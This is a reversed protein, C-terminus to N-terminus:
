KILTNRGILTVTLKYVLFNKIQQKKQINIRIVLPINGQTRIGCLQCLFLAMKHLRGSSRIDVEPNVV